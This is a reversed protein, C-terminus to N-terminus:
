QIWVLRLTFSNDKQDPAAAGNGAADSFVGKKTNKNKYEALLQFGDGFAYNAFVTIASQTNLGTASLQSAKNADTWKFQLKNSPEFYDYRAGFGFLDFPVYRGELFWGSSNFDDGYTKNTLDWSHDVGQQYGGLLMGKQIPYSAYLAYRLFTNQYLNPLWDVTDNWPITKTPDAPNPQTIGKINNHPVFVPSWSGNPMDAQGRYVYLSVGGGEDTLLQTATFQFDFQGDYKNRKVLMGGQAPQGAMGRDDTTDAFIGNFITGRIFTNKYSWGLELGVEDFGWPQFETSLNANTTNNAANGTKPPAGGQFIPRSIGMPRDFAGYGEFPHFIGAKVSWYNEESGANYRLYANEIEWFDEPSNSLEVLSSLNKTLSGTLPYLTVEFFQLDNESTPDPLTGTSTGVSKQQGIHQLNVQIRGALYDSYNFPQKSDKGIEEPLRFGASRFKFGFENLCPVVTHCTACSLGYKRAFNPMASGPTTLGALALAVALISLKLSLSRM